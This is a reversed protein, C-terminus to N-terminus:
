SRRLATRLRKLSESVSKNAGPLKALRDSIIKAKDEGVEEVLTDAAQEIWTQRAPM